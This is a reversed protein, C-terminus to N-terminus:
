ESEARAAASGRQLANPLTHMYGRLGEIARVIRTTQAGSSLMLSELAQMPEALAAADRPDELDFFHLPRGQTFCRALTTKGCQRPGLIATVPHVTFSQDIQWLYMPRPIM